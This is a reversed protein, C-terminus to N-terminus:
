RPLPGLGYKSSDHRQLSAVHQHLLVMDQLIPRAWKVEHGSHRLCQRDRELAGTGACILEGWRLDLPASVKESSALFSPNYDVNCDPGIIWARTKSVDRSGSRSGHFLRKLKRGEPHPSDGTSSDRSHSGMNQPVSVVRATNVHGNRVTPPQASSSRMRPSSPGGHAQLKGQPQGSELSNSRTRERIKELRPALTQSGAVAPVPPITTSPSAVSPADDGYPRMDPSSRRVKRLMNPISPTRYHQQRTPPDRIALDKDPGPFAATRTPDAYAVPLPKRYVDHRTPLQDAPEPTLSPLIYRALLEMRSRRRALKSDEGNELRQEGADVQRGDVQSSDAEAVVVEVSSVGASTESWPTNPEPDPTRAAADNESKTYKESQFSPFRLPAFM